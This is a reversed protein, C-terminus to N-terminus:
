LKFWSINSGEICLIPPEGDELWSGLNINRANTGPITEDLIVHMHGSILIDFPKEAHVKAAHVRIMDKIHEENNKRYSRSRKRSSASMKEGVREWFMGPLYHAFQEVFKNRSFARWKIYNVDKPNMQDGHELRVTFNGIKRYEPKTHMEFGLKKTWFPALHLDHNGEFYVLKSGKDKLIKLPEYLPEFKKVFVSHSSLWFDFIDGLFYLDPAENEAAISHLFRLLTQGNREQMNDLHIDSVFYAKAM